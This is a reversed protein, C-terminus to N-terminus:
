WVKTGLPRISSPAGDQVNHGFSRVWVQAFGALEASWKFPPLGVDSRVKNHFDLADQGDEMLVKSGTVKPVDQAMSCHSIVFVLVLLNGKM